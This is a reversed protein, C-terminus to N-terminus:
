WYKRRAIWRPDILAPWSPIADGSLSAETLRRFITDAMENDTIGQIAPMGFFSEPQPGTLDLKGEPTRCEIVWQDYRSM